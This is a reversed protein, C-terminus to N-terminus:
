AVQRLNLFGIMQGRELEDHFSYGFKRYLAVAVTNSPYVKLRIAPAGTTRAIDHLHSLMAAAFGKGSASPHVALGLSPIAFGEDYGRLCGYSLARDSVAEVGACYYEKSNKRCIAAATEADFPHPHFTASYGAEEFASFLKALRGADHETLRKIAIRSM